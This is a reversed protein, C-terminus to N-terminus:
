TIKDTHSIKCKQKSTVLRLNTSLCVHRNTRANIVNPIDPIVGTSLFLTLGVPM